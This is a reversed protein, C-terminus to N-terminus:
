PDWVGTDHEFFTVAAEANAATIGLETIMHELVERKRRHHAHSTIVGYTPLPRLITDATAAYPGLGTPEAGDCASQDEPM